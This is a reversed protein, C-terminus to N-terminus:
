RELALLDAMCRYRSCPPVTSDKCSGAAGPGVVSDASATSNSPPGIIPSPMGSVIRDSWSRARTPGRVVDVDLRDLASGRSARPTASRRVIMPEFTGSRDRPTEPGVPRSETLVTKSTSGNRSNESGRGAPDGHDHGLHRALEEHLAGELVSKMMQQLLGQPGAIESGEERAREV